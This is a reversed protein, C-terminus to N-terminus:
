KLLEGIGTYVDRASDSWKRSVHRERIVAEMQKRSEENTATRIIAEAWGSTDWPELYAVLDGGVEPLSAKNSSLVVKGFSLAEAVPLGWGEYLSPYVCFMATEYLKLLEADNVHNLQVILGKVMPDLEIDKLLDGVGWGQMGVFVLIPLQDRKGEKCLLHYARYLVEHNKRREISSVYLIFPKTILGEVETSVGGVNSPLNSGLYFVQTKVRRGGTRDLMELLDKQTQRSICLVLDSGEAVDLFYSTFLAAVEGVCYQPYLVPILDYCCTVIKINERTRLYYFSKYFGEDWDLGVSILVDGPSFPHSLSDVLPNDSGRELIQPRLLSDEVAGRSRRRDLWVSIGRMHKAIKPKCRRLARDIYPRLRIPSLSFFGQLISLVARRKPLIPLLYHSEQSIIQRPLDDKQLDEALTLDENTAGLEAFGDGTWICCKFQGEPYLMALNHRLEKEVRVIGVAPRFWKASTTVNMWITPQRGSSM